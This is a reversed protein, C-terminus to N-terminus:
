DAEIGLAKMAYSKARYFAKADLERRAESLYGAIKIARERAAQEKKEKQASIRESEEAEKREEIKAIFAKVALNTEEIGQAELAYNRANDFKNANLEEEGKELLEGIRNARRIAEQEAEYAKEAKDTKELFSKAEVNGEELSFVRRAYNRSAYFNGADLEKSAQKLYEAIKGAQKRLVEEEKVKQEAAIGAQEKSRRELRLQEREQEYIKQAKEKEAIFDIIKKNKADVSLAKDVYDGAEYFSNKNLAKRAKMLYEEIKRLRDREEVKEQAQDVAEIEKKIRSQKEQELKAKEDEGAEESDDVKLLFAKAEDNAADIELVRAAYSRAHYFRKQELFLKAEGLYKEIRDAKERFVAEEKARQEAEEEKKRQKEIEERRRQRFIEHEKKQENLKKLFSLVVPNNEEIRMAQMSYDQAKDLNDEDLFKKAKELYNAIKEARELVEEEQKIKANKEDFYEKEEDKEKREKDYVYKKKFKRFLNRAEKERFKDVATDIEKQLKEKIKRAKEVHKRAREFDDDKLSTEADLLYGSVEQELQEERDSRFANEQKRIDKIRIALSKLESDLPFKKDLNELEKEISAYDGHEVCEAAHKLLDFAEDSRGSSKEQALLRGNIHTDVVLLFSLVSFVIAFFRMCKEQRIDKAM